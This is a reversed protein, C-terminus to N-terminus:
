FGMKRKEEVFKKDGGFLEALTIDNEPVPLNYKEAVKVAKDKKLKGFDYRMRCRGPRLLAEDINKENTNFTCIFKIKLADALIGDTMNLMDAVASSRTNNKTVVLNECDEIIFVSNKNGLLFTVFSPNTIDNILNSPIYVFKKDKRMCKILHRIYTTKGTGAIGHLIYLGNDDDKISRVIEKHIDSFGDNYLDFDMDNKIKIDFEELYFGNDRAIISCKVKDDKDIYDSFYKNIVDKILEISKHSHLVIANQWSCGYSLLIGDERYMIWSTMMIDGGAQEMVDGNDDEDENNNTYHIVFTDFGNKLLIEYIESAMKCREKFEGKRILFNCQFKPYYGFVSSYVNEEDELTRRMVMTNEITTETGSIKIDKSM